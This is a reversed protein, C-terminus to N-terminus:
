RKLSATYRAIWEEVTLRSALEGVLDYPIEDGPAFRVCSKGLDPRKGLAERLAASFWAHLTADGYLGMHHVAITAKQSALGMLMLPKAPDVHYGAPFRAHPVVYLIMGSGVVEAFGPPMRKRIQARLRRMPAQREAPLAAIYAEPTPAPTPM